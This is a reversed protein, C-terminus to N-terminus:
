LTRVVQDAELQPATNKLQEDLECFRIRCKIFILRAAFAITSFSLVIVLILYLELERENSKMTCKIVSCPTPRTDKHCLVRQFPTYNLAKVGYGSKCEILVPAGPLFYPVKDPNVVVGHQVSFQHLPCRKLESPLAFSISTLPWSPVKGDITNLHIPHVKDDVFAYVKFKCVSGVFVTSKDVLIKRSSINSKKDPFILGYGEDKIMWNLELNSNIKSIRFFDRNNHAGSVNESRSLRWMDARKCNTWSLQYNNNTVNESYEVSLCKQLMKILVGSRSKDIVEKLEGICELCEMIGVAINPDSELRYMLMKNKYLSCVRTIFHFVFVECLGTMKCYRWCDQLGTIKFSYLVSSSPYSALGKRSICSQNLTDQYPSKTTVGSSTLGFEPELSGSNTDNTASWLNKDRQGYARYTAKFFAGCLLFILCTLRM